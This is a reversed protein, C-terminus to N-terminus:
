KETKGAQFDEASLTHLPKGAKAGGGAMPAAGNHYRHCEVCAFGAGGTPKDASVSLPSHCQLCADRQPILVDKSERSPQPADAYAGAHCQRCDIARHAAHDFTAHQFWVQPVQPAVVPQLGPDPSQPEHCKGCYEESLLKQATEMEGQIAMAVTQNEPRTNPLPEPPVFPKELLKANGRLFDEAFARELATRIEDPTQRHRVIGPAKYLPHCAQCQNEYTIPLMYRGSARAPLLSQSLGAVHTVGFDGADLQHCSGCDLQVPSDDSQGARRYRERQAPDAIKALTWVTKEERPDNVLGPTLHRYHSFKLHGPDKQASAFQPHHERDFSSVNAPAPTSGPQGAVHRDIAQHCRTCVRDDMRLLSAQIGQHDQHCSSCGPAESGPKLPHHEAGQHCARCKQDAAPTGGEWRVAVADDRISHFDAHCASCQAEWTHHVRALNGPSHFSANQRGLLVGATWWAAAAVVVVVTLVFKRREWLSPTKFYDLPIRSARQRGTVPAAM